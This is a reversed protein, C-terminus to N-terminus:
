RSYYEVVLSINFEAGFDEKEPLREIKGYSEERLLWSPINERPFNKLAEQVNFLNLATPALTIKQGVRVNYSPIDIRKNDILIHGHRVLQRAQNLSWCFGLRRVINDLRTELIQQLAVGFESQKQKKEAERIYRRFQNELVGYTRKLKQKERLRVGYDTIRSRRKPPEGPPVAGKKEVPCKATYCRKGKLYLKKGERRCLKCKANTYRAM